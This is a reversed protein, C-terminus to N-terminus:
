IVLDSLIEVAQIIFYGEAFVFGDTQTVNGIMDATQDSSKILQFSGSNVGCACCSPKFM